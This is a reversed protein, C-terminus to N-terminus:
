RGFTLAALRERFMDHHYFYTRFSLKLLTGTGQVVLVARVHRAFDAPGAVEKAKTVAAPPLSERDLKLCCGLRFVSAAASSEAELQIQLAGDGADDRADIAETPREFYCAECLGALCM